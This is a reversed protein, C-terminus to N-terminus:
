NILLHINLNGKQRFNKQCVECSFAKIGSHVLMHKNLTCKDRFKKQCVECRHPKAGTHSRMHRYLNGIHRFDKECIECSFPKEDSHILLHQKLTGKNNFSKQCIECSFAKIGSHVLRHKKLSAKRPFSKQCTECRFPKLGSHIINHNKLAGKRPFNMRCIKCSYQMTSSQIDVPHQLSEKETVSSTNSSQSHEVSDCESMRQDAIVTGSSTSFSDNERSEVHFLNAVPESSLSQSASSEPKVSMSTDSHIEVTHRILHQQRDFEKGCKECSFTATPPRPPAGFKSKVISTSTCSQDQIVSSSRIAESKIVSM